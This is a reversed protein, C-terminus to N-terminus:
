ISFHFTKHGHFYQYQGVGVGGEADHAVGNGNQPGIGDDMQTVVIIVPFGDSLFIGVEPYMLYGAIAIAEATQGSCRLEQTVFDATDANEHGVTMIVTDFATGIAEDAVGPFQTCFNGQKAMGVLRHTKLLFITNPYEIGASATTKAAAYSKNLDIVPLNKGAPDKGAPM